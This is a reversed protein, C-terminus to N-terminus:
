RESEPFLYAVLNRYTPMSLESKGSMWNYLTQRSVGIRAAVAKVNRDELKKKIEDDSIMNAM